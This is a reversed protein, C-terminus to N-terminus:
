CILYKKANHSSNLKVRAARRQPTEWGDKVPQM